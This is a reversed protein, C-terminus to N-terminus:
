LQPQTDVGLRPYVSSHIWCHVVWHQIQDVDSSVKSHRLEKLTVDEGPLSLESVDPNKQM